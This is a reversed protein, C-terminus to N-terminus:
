ARAGDRAAEAAAFGAQGLHYGLLQAPVLFLLGALPEPVPPLELVGEPALADFAREGETTVVYLRGGWRHADTGTEVARPVSPGTPVLMVLPEGAKQSNYHHYEELQVEVARLPTCEKVKAAGVVAAALCPGAGTFLVTPADLEARAIAALPADLDTIVRGMLEPLGDLAVRLADAGAADRATGARVALELLLALAASSSQTPWGKRTARIHLTTAAERELTSSPTNTLAVTYAGANQAVLLAEVTRTTEGSSSLALVADRPGLLGAQYYALEHSQVPECPVGLMTELALRAGTMVALSDGAGAMLVRSAQRLRDAVATLAADNVSLTERIAQPQGVLEPGTADVRARRKPDLPDDSGLGLIFAREAEALGTVLARQREDLVGAVPDLLPTLYGPM